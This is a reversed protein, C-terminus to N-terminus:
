RPPLSPLDKPFVDPFDRVVPVNELKVVEKNTDRVYALYGHCGKKLLKRAQLVSILRPFIVKCSGLFFFEALDVHMKVDDIWLMCRKFVHDVILFDRTPTDVCLDCDLSKPPVDLKKAFEMSVFSHTAGPDFLAYAYRSAMSVDSAVVANSAAADEETMEFVKGVTRQRQQNEQPIDIPPVNKRM